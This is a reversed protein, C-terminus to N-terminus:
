QDRPKLPQNKINQLTKACHHGTLLDMRFRIAQGVTWDGHQAQVWDFYADVAQAREDDSALSEPCQFRADLETDSVPATIQETAQGSAQAAAPRPLAIMAVLM